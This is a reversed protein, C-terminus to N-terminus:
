AAEQAQQVREAANELSGCLDGIIDDFMGSVERREININSSSAIDAIATDVYMTVATLLRRLHEARELFDDKDALTYSNLYTPQNDTLREILHAHAGAITERLFPFRTLSYRKSM